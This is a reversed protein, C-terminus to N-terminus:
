PHEMTPRLWVPSDQFIHETLNRHDMLMHMASMTDARFMKMLEDKIREPSVNKLLALLELNDLADEIHWHLVFSHTVAFRAARLLRLSDERFRDAAVGVARLEMDELDKRGEFPDIYLGGETVAIANVTFDRRALDDRLSGLEVKDPRRGDSYYGDKRCLVFDADVERGEVGWFMRARTTLFEERELYIRGGRARIAENMEEYSSAEVAFDIDKSQRGLLLDRVYGGVVYFNVM